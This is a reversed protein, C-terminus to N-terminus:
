TFLAFKEEHSLATVAALPDSPPAAPQASTPSM